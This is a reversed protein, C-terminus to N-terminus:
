HDFAMLLLCSIVVFCLAFICTLVIFLIISFLSFPVNSIHQLTRDTIKNRRM